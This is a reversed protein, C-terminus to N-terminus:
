QKLYFSHFSKVIDAVEKSSYTTHGDLCINALEKLKEETIITENDCVRPILEQPRSVDDPNNVSFSDIILRYRLDYIEDILIETLQQVCEMKRMVQVNSM